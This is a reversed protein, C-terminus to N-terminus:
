RRQTLKLRLPSGYNEQATSVVITGNADAEKLKKKNFDSAPQGWPQIRGTSEPTDIGYYRSKINLRSTTTVLPIFHATDGDISQYLKVQGIGDKYFDRGKYDLSLRVAASQTYDVWNADGQSPEKNGNGGTQCGALLAVSLFTAIALTIQKFKNM